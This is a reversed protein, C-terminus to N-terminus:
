SPDAAINPEWDNHRSWRREVTWHGAQGHGIATAAAPAGAAAAAGAAAPLAAGLLGAALLATLSPHRIKM